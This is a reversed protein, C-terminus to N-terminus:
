VLVGGNSRKRRNAEDNLGRVMAEAVWRVDASGVVWDVNVGVMSMSRETVRDNITFYREKGDMQRKAYYRNV